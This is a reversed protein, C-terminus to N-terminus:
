LQSAWRNQQQIYQQNGATLHNIQGASYNSWMYVPYPPPPYYPEPSSRQQQEQYLNQWYPNVCPNAYKPPFAFPYNPLNLTTQQNNEPSSMSDSSSQSMEHISPPSVPEEYKVLPPHDVPSYSMNWNNHHNDTAIDDAQYSYQPSATMSTRTSMTTRTNFDKQQEHQQHLGVNSGFVPHCNDLASGYGFQPNGLVEPTSEQNTTKDKKQGNKFRYRRRLFSGHDFMDEYDPDICWDHGKAGPKRGLKM